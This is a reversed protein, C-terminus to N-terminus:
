PKLLKTLADIQTACAAQAQTEVERYLQVIREGVPTLVCGGGSQGGQESITAPSELARNLEDILLWARRYSMDLSRAAASISGHRRVAELLSVKGPGIAITEGKTVRMRFRVEAPASAADATNAANRENASATTKHTTAM